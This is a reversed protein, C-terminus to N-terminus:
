AEVPPQAPHMHAAATAAAVMEALRAAPPSLRKGKLKLKLVCSEWALAPQRVAATQVRSRVEGALALAPVISVGVGAAVQALVTSFSSLELHPLLRAGRAVAADEIVRRLYTGVPLALFPQALLEKLPVGQRSQLPYDPPLM